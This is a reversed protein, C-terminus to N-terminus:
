TGCKRLIMIYKYVCKTERECESMTASVHPESAAVVAYPKPNREMQADGASSLVSGQL